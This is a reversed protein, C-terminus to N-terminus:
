ASVSTLELVVDPPLDGFKEVGRRTCEDAVRQLVKNSHQLADIRSLNQMIIRRADDPTLDCFFKSEGPGLNYRIARLSNYAAAAAELRKSKPRYDTPPTVLPARNRSNSPTSQCRVSDCVGLYFVDFVDAHEAVLEPPLDATLKHWLHNAIDSNHPEHFDALLARMHERGNRQSPAHTTPM